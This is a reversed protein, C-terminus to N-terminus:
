TTNEQFYQPTGKGDDLKCREWSNCGNVCSQYRAALDERVLLTKVWLESVM